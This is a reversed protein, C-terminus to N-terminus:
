NACPSTAVALVHRKRGIVEPPLSLSVKRPDFIGTSPPPEVPTKFIILAIINECLLNKVSKSGALGNTIWLDDNNSNTDTFAPYGGCSTNFDQTPMFDQTPLINEILRYRHRDPLSSLFDPRLNADSGFEVYYGCANLLNPLDSLTANGNSFGIPAFFFVGHGQQKGSLQNVAEDVVFHLDSARGYRTPTFTANSSNRRLWDSGYYDLYTNLTAQSLRRSLTDYATRAADFSVISSQTNRWLRFSSDTITTLLVVFLALVATSVLVELLSFGARDAMINRHSKL